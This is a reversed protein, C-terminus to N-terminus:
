RSWAATMRALTFRPSGGLIRLHFDAIEPSTSYMSISLIECSYLRYKLGLALKDYNIEDKGRLYLQSDEFSHFALDYRALLFQSVGMQFYAVTLYNDHEVAANFNEVAAEGVTAYIVGIITLIKSNNAIKWFLELSGEFDEADYAKM